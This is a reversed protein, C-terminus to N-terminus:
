DYNIGLWKLGVYIKAEAEPVFRARDTDEIRLVFQGGDKHALALNFMSLWATGIHAIGTPSPAIRTRNM